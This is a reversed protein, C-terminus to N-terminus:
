LLPAEDPDFCALVFEQWEENSMSAAASIAAAEGEEEPRLRKRSPQRSKGKEKEGAAACSRWKMRICPNPPTAFPLLDADTPVVEDVYHFLVATPLAPKRHRAAAASRAPVGRAYEADVLAIEHRKVGRRARTHTIRRARAQRECACARM